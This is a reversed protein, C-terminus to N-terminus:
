ELKIGYRILSNFHSRLDTICLWRRSVTSDDFLSGQECKAFLGAFEIFVGDRETVDGARRCGNHVHRNTMGGLDDANKGDVAILRLSVVVFRQIIQLGQRVM